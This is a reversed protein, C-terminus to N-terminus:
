SCIWRRLATPMIACFPRGARRRHSGEGRWTNQWPPRGSMSALSSCNRTGFERELRWHLILGGEHKTGIGAVGNRDKALDVFARKVGIM